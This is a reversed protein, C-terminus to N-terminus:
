SDDGREAIPYGLKELIAGAVAAVVISGAFVAAIGDATQLFEGLVSAPRLERAVACIVWFGVICGWLATGALTVKLPLNVKPAQEGASRNLKLGFYVVLGAVALTIAGLVLFFKLEDILPADM